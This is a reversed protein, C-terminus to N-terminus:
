KNSALQWRSFNSCSAYKPDIRIYYNPLRNMLWEETKKAQKQQLAVQQIKSYDDKLNAKHPETRSKLYVIRLSREGRDTNFLQPQSFSGVKMTDIMLVMAPDLRDIELQATGTQPDIVMGGTNKAAEDTSFKGVAEPFTFKGAILLARVSDLKESALKFDASTREPRILIHRVDAVEGKRQIMQIIHYGFQTKVLPSVEGNQLKFAAAVFEPAWGGGTRNIDNYRGGNDRSGPDDSYLGALTEFSKGEVVVQNRIDELKKKAYEDLEASVPPDIVIQGVEVSAPFFPLSDVPIKNYFQQVESPTIKVNELIKQQMKEAMLQEKFLERNEEKLQYITKGAIEELKEKSGYQRIFTRIRNEITGEVDEDSVLLSDRDAQEVLLKQIVMQQLLYCKVTDSIGPDQAKMTSFQVDLDSQLVIRNKGVVAMIKDATGLIDQAKAFPSIAFLCVLLFGIKNPLPFKSFNM